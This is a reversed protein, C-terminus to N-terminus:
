QCDSSFKTRPKMGVFQLGPQCLGHVTHKEVTSSFFSVSQMLPSGNIVDAFNESKKVGEGITRLNM